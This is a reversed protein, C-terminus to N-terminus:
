SEDLVKVEAEIVDESQLHQMMASRITSVRLFDEDTLPTTVEFDIQYYSTGTSSASAKGTLKCRTMYYDGIDARRRAIGRFEDFNKVSMKPARLLYPTQKGKPLVLLFRSENCLKGGNKGAGFKNMPCSACLIPSDNGSELAPHKTDLLDAEAAAEEDDIRPIGYTGDASQCFPLQGSKPEASPWFSMQKQAALIVVDLDDFTEGDMQFFPANSAPGKIFPLIDDGSNIDKASEAAIMMQRETLEIGGALDTIAKVVLEASPPAERTAIATSM